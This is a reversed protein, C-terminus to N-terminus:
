EAAAIDGEGSKVGPSNGRVKVIFMTLYISGLAAIMTLFYYGLSIWAPIDPIRYSVTRIMYPLAFLPLSWIMIFRFFPKRFIGAAENISFQGKMYLLICAYASTSYIYMIYFVPFMIANLWFNVENLNKYRFLDLRSTIVLFIVMVPLMIVGLYIAGTIVVGPFKGFGAKFNVPIRRRMDYALYIMFLWPLVILGFLIFFQSVSFGNLVNMHMMRPVVAPLIAMVAFIILLKIDSVDMIFRFLNGAELEGHAPGPWYIVSSSYKASITADTILLALYSGCFQIIVTSIISFSKDASIIILLLSPIVAGTYSHIFRKSFDVGPTKWLKVMLFSPVLAIALTILASVIFGQSSM